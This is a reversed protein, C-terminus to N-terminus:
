QRGIGLTEAVGEAAARYAGPDAPECWDYGTGPTGDYSLYRTIERWYLLYQAAAIAELDEATLPTGMTAEWGERLAAWAEPRGRVLGLSCGVQMGACGVRCMELDYFGMFRGNQVHLNGVDQHYLVRPRALLTGVQAEVFALQEGWYADRFDPDRAHVGRGLELVRGFYAELTPTDAYFRSEFAARDAASLPVSALVSMARGVERCARLWADDRALERPDHIGRGPVHSMVIIVPDDDWLLEPVLGTGRWHRLAFAERQKREEECFVKIVVLTEGRHAFVVSNTAGQHPQGGEELSYQPHAALFAEVKERYGPTPM